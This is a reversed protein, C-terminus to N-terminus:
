RECSLKLEDGEIVPAVYQGASYNIIVIKPLVNMEFNSGKVQLGPVYTAPSQSWGSQHDALWQVLRAHQTSGPLISCSVRGEGEPPEILTLTEDIPPTLELRHCGLMAVALLLMATRIM